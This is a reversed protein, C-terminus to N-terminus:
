KKKKKGKRVSYPLKGTQKWKNLRRIGKRYAKMKIRVKGDLDKFVGRKGFFGMSVWNRVTTKNIKHIEAIDNYTLTNQIKAHQKRMLALAKPNDEKHTLYKNKKDLYAQWWDSTEPIKGFFGIYDSAPWITKHKKTDIKIADLSGAKKSYSYFVGRRVVRLVVNVRSEGGARFWKTLMLMTPACIVIFHRKQRVHAFKIKLKRQARTMAETSLFADPEDFKFPDKPKLYKERLRYDMADFFINAMVYRERNYYACLLDALNSKGLGVGTKDAVILIVFDYKKGIVEKKVYDINKKTTDDLYKAPNPVLLQKM